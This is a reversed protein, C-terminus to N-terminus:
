RWVDVLSSRDDTWRHPQETGYAVDVWTRKAVADVLAKDRSAVVWVALYAWGDRPSVVKAAHLGLEELLPFAVRSLDLHRNSVHLLLLGDPKLARAYLAMAEATFLHVPIADGSFVDVAVLDKPRLGAALDQELLARADGERLTVRAKVRDLVDFHGGEGRALRVVNPDIEYFTAEDGAELLAASTGVGLGLMLTDLAPTKERLLRISAGLGSGRGYYSLPEAEKGPVRLQLGHITEGHYLSVRHNDTQADLEAVHLVGFFNRMRAREHARGGAGVWSGALVLVSLLLSIAVVLRGAFVPSRMDDPRRALHLVGMLGVACLVAPFEWFDDLLLPGGLSVALSGLAGGASLVLYYTGLHETGPRLRFLAGHVFLSSGLQLLLHAGLLAGLGYNGDELAATNVLAGAAFLSLWLTPKDWRPHEFPLIFSVLYVGLPLAWLLPGASVDQCLVNSTAGLLVTGLGALGLWAAVRWPSLRELGEESVRPPPSAAGRLAVWALA